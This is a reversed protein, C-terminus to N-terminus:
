VGAGWFCLVFSFFILIHFVFLLIVKVQYYLPTYCGLLFIINLTCTHYYMGRIEAVCSATTSNSGLALGLCFFLLVRGSFAFLAPPMASSTFDEHLVLEFGWHWLFVLPPFPLSV